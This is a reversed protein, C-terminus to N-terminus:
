YDSPSSSVPSGVQVKFSDSWNIWVLKEVGSGGFTGNTDRAAETVFSGCTPTPPPPPPKVPSVAVTAVGVVLLVAAALRRLMRLATLIAGHEPAM